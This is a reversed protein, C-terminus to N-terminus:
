GNMTASHLPTLGCKGAENINTEYLVLDNPLTGGRVLILIM